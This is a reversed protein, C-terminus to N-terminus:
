IHLGRSIQGVASIHDSSLGACAGGSGALWDCSPAPLPPNPRDPPARPARRGLVHRRRVRRRAARVGPVHRVGDQVAGAQAVLLLSSQGSSHLAGCLSALQARQLCIHTYTYVGAQIAFSQCQSVHLVLASSCLHLLAHEQAVKLGHRGRMAARATQLLGRSHVHWPSFQEARMSPMVGTSRWRCPPGCRKDLKSGFEELVVPM